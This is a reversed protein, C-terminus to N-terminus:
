SAPSRLLADVRVFRYGEASFKQLISEVAALTGPKPPGGDHFIVISGPQIHPLTQAELVPIEQTETDTSEVDWTIHRRGTQWLVYPLILFKKGYPARFMIEGEFGLSRILADTRNLEEHTWGPTKFLMRRHSYSHNGLQHGAAVVKQGMEPHQEISRGMMFFTAKADHRQLLELLPGTNHPTPGDDFTLAILKETTTGRQHLDGFFQFSRAKSIQWFATFLLMAVAVGIFVKRARKM